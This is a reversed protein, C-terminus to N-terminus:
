KSRYDKIGMIGFIILAIAFVITPIWRTMDEGNIALVIFSLICMFGIALQFISVFINYKNM